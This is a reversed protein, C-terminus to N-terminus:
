SGGNHATFWALPVRALRAAIDRRIRLQLDADAFHTLAGAAMMCVLRLALAAAAIWAITVARGPNDDAVLARSIEVVAIFPAIGALAGMAQVACAAILTARIPRILRAIASQPNAM